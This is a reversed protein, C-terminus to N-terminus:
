FFFIKWFEIALCHMACRFGYYDPQWVLSCQLRQLILYKQRNRNLFIYQIWIQRTGLQIQQAIKTVLTFAVSLSILPLQMRLLPVRCAVATSHMKAQVQLPKCSVTKNALYRPLYALSVRAFNNNCQSNKTYLSYLNNTNKDLCTWDGGLGLGTM